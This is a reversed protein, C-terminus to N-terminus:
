ADQVFIMPLVDDLYINEEPYSCIALWGSRLTMCIIALKMRSYSICLLILSKNNRRVYGNKEIATQKASIRQYEVENIVNNARLIGLLPTCDPCQVFLEVHRRLVLSEMTSIDDGSAM